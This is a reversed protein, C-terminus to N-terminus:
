GNQYLVRTHCVSPRVSPCVFNAHCIRAIAYISNRTIVFPVVGVVPRDILLRKRYTWSVLLDIPFRVLSRKIVLRMAVVVSGLWVACIYVVYFRILCWDLM